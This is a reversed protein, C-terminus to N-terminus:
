GRGGGGGTEKGGDVLSFLEGREMRREKEREYKSEDGKFVRSYPSISSFQNRELM